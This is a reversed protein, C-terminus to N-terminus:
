IRDCLPCALPCGFNIGFYLRNLHPYPKNKKKKKKELKWRSPLPGSRYTRNTLAWNSAESIGIRRILYELEGFADM